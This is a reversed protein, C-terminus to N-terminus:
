RPGVLEVGIIGAWFMVGWGGQQHSLYSNSCDKPLLFDWHCLIDLFFNLFLVKNCLLTVCLKTEMYVASYALKETSELYEQMKSTFDAIAIQEDATEELIQVVQAFTQCHQNTM